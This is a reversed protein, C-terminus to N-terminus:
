ASHTHTFATVCEAFTTQEGYIMAFDLKLRKAILAARKSAGANKAVVICTKFEPIQTQIYNTILPSSKVNDIPVGFFGQMQMHNLDM